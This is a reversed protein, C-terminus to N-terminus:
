ERMLDERNVLITRYIVSISRADSWTTTLHWIKMSPLKLAMEPLRMNEWWYRYSGILVQHWKWAILKHLLNGTVSVLSSVLFMSKRSSNCDYLLSSNVVLRSPPWLISQININTDMEKLVWQLHSKIKLSQVAVVVIGGEFADHLEPFNTSQIIYNFKILCHREIM